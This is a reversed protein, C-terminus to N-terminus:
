YTRVNGVRQVPIEPDDTFKIWVTYKRGAVLTFDTGEGILIGRGGDLLTATVWDAPRAGPETLTVEFASTPVGDATVTIPGVWEKTEAAVSWQTLEDAM